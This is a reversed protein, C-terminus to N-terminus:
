PWTVPEPDLDPNPPFNSGATRKRLEEIEEWGNSRKRYLAAPVTGVLLNGGLALLSSIMLRPVNPDARQWSEGGDHSIFVGSHETGVYVCRPDAPDVALCTAAWYTLDRAVAAWEGSKHEFRYWGSHTVLHLANARRHATTM